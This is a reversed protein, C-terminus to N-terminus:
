RRQAALVALRLSEAAGRAAREAAETAAANDALVQGSRTYEASATRALVTPETDSGDRATITLTATVTVSVPKAPNTTTTVVMDAGSSAASVTALRATPATSSGFRLSLEQYIIQELRSTPKAYALNLSPQDALTGSYVPSFSCAGLTAGMGLLLGALVTRRLADSWSM